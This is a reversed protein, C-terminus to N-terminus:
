LLQGLAWRTQGFWLFGAAILSGLAMVAGLFGVQAQNRLWCGCLSLIVLLEIRFCRSATEEHFPIQGLNGDLQELVEDLSPHLM